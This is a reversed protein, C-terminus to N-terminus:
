AARLRAVLSAICAMVLYVAAIVVLVFKPVACWWALQAYFASPAHVLQQILAHNELADLPAAALVAWSVAVGVLNWQGGLRRGLRVAALSFWAPYVVLYLYDLGLSFMAAARAAESWSRIIAASRDLSWALEFSIIGRPAEATVLEQGVATLWLSLGVLLLTVAALLRPQATQTVWGFPSM